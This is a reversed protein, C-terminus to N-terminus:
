VFFMNKALVYVIFLALFTGVVIAAVKQGARKPKDSFGGGFGPM